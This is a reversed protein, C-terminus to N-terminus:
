SPANLYARIKERAAEYAATVNESFAYAGRHVNAYENEYHWRMLDIVQRPKQASAGSDLFCLPKGHVQTSLIPFDARVADVDYVPKLAGAAATM